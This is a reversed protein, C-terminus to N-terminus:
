PTEEGGERPIKDLDETTPSPPGLSELSNVLLRLRKAERAYHAAFGEFAEAERRLRDARYKFSGM